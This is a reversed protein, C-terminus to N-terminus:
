NPINGLMLPELIIVGLKHAWFLHQALQGGVIQLQGPKQTGGMLNTVPVVVNGGGAQDLIPDVLTLPPGPEQRFRLMLVVGHAGPVTSHRASDLAGPSGQDPLQYSTALRRATTVTYNRPCRNGSSM